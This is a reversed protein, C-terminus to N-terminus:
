RDLESQGNPAPSVRVGTAVSCTGHTIGHDELLCLRPLGPPQWALLYSDLHLASRDVSGSMQMDNCLCSADKSAGEVKGSIGEVPSCIIFPWVMCWLIEDNILHGNARERCIVRAADPRATLSGEKTKSVLYM